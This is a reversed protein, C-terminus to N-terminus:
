VFPIEICTNQYIFIYNAFVNVPLFVFTIDRDIKFKFMLKYVRSCIDVCTGDLQM